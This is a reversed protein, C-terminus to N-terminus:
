SVNLIDGIHVISEVLAISAMTIVDLIDFTGPVGDFVQLIELLLALCLFCLRYILCTKPQEHWLARLFLLGSLLWLGDSLNYRAFDTLVSSHSLPIVATNRPLFAFWQYILMDGNRLLYYLLFGACLALTSLSFYVKPKIMFDGRRIKM